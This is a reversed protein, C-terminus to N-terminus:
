AAKIKKNGTYDEYRKIIVDCYHPDIEMGYCIRGTKECAILTSGSGLFGDFVINDKSANDLIVEYLMGVPKQTPHVRKILETKRDGERLLGSWKYKYIRAPKKLNSWAMECDAFNNSPIDVRKDWVIWGSTPILFDTM